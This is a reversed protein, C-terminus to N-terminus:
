RSRLRGSKTRGTCMPQRVLHRQTVRFAHIRPCSCPPSAHAGVGQQIPQLAHPLGHRIRVPASDTRNSQPCPETLAFRLSFLRAILHRFDRSVGWSSASSSPHGTEPSGPLLGASAARTGVAVARASRAQASSTGASGHRVAHRALGNEPDGAGHHNLAQLEVAQATSLIAWTSVGDRRAMPRAHVRSGTLPTLGSSHRARSSRQPDHSIDSKPPANQCVMRHVIGSAGRTGSLADNNRRCLRFRLGKAARYREARWVAHRRRSQRPVDRGSFDCLTTAHGAAASVADPDRRFRKKTSPHRPAVYTSNGIPIRSVLTLQNPTKGSLKSTAM